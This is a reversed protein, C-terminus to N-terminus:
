KASCNVFPFLTAASKFFSSLTVGLQITRPTAYEESLPVILAFDNKYHRILMSRDTFEIGLPFIM